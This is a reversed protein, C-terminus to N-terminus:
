EEPLHSLHRYLFLETGFWEVHGLALTLPRYLRELLLDSGHFTSKVPDPLADLGIVIVLYWFSSTTM